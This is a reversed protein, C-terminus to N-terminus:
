DEGGDADVPYKWEKDHIETTLVGGVITHIGNESPIKTEGDSIYPQLDGISTPAEDNDLQYMQYAGVLVRFEAEAAKIEANERFKTLQPIAIAVLIGIIAIVIILEVLTFGKQNKKQM